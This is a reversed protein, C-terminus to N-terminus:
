LEDSERKEVQQRSCGFFIARKKVNIKTQYQLHAEETRSSTRGSDAWEPDALTERVSLSFDTEPPYCVQIQSFRVHSPTVLFNRM